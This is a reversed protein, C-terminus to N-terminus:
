LWVHWIWLLLIGASVSFLAILLLVADINNNNKMSKVECTREATQAFTM